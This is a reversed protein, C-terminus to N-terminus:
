GHQDVQMVLVIILSFFYCMLSPHQVTTSCNSQIPYPIPHISRWAPHPVSCRVRHMLFFCQDLFTWRDILRTQHDKEDQM